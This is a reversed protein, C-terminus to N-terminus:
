DQQRSLARGDGMLREPPPLLLDGQQGPRGEATGALGIDGNGANNNVVTLERVGTRRVADILEIPQGAYGFGGILIVAGDFVGAVAADAEEVTVTM